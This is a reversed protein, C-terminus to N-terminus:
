PLHQVHNTRYNARVPTSNVAQSIAQIMVELPLLASVPCTDKGASPPHEPHLFPSHSPGELGLLM